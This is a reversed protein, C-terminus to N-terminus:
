LRRSVAQPTATDAPESPPWADRRLELESGIRPAWVKARWDELMEQWCCRLRPLNEPEIIGWVSGGNGAGTVTAAGGLEEAASIMAAAKSTVRKPILRQHARHEQRMAQVAAQWDQVDVAAAFDRTAAFVRPWEERGAPTSASGTHEANITSSVHPELFAILLREELAREAAGSRMAKREVWVAKDHHWEWLNAHGAVCAAADQGGALSQGSAVEAATSFAILNQRSAEDLRSGPEALAALCVCLCTTFVSPGGLGSSRPIGSVLEIDAGCDLGYHQLLMVILRNGDTDHPGSVLITSGSADLMRVIGDERKRVTVQMPPTIAINFTAPGFRALPIAIEPFDAAAGLDVRGHGIATVALHRRRRGM